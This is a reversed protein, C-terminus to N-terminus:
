KKAKKLVKRVQSQSHKVRQAIVSTPLGQAKYAIAEEYWTPKEKKERNIAATARQKTLLVAKVLENVAESSEVESLQVLAYITNLDVSITGRYEPAKRIKRASYYLALAGAEVRHFEGSTDVEDAWEVANERSLGLQDLVDAPAFMLLLGAIVEGEM